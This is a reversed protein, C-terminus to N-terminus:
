WDWGKGYDRVPYEHWCDLLWEVGLHELYWHASSSPWALPDRAHGHKVPNYHLYNVSAYYHGDSRIFRDSFRYWIRRGEAQARRNLERATRAHARRLAQSIEELRDCQVLLHYHNPLVVWASCAVEANGLEKFLEGLLWSRLTGNPFRYKHEYTAATILVWGAADYLHPPAHLPYDRLRRQRLM